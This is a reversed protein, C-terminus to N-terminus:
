SCEAELTCPALLKGSFVQPALPKGLIPSPFTPTISSETVPRSGGYDLAEEEMFGGQGM